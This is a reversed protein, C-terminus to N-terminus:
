QRVPLPDSDPFFIKREGFSGGGAPDGHIAVRGVSSPLLTPTRAQKRLSSPLMYLM